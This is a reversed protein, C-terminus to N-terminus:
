PLMIGKLEFQIPVERMPGPTEYELRWSKLNAPAFAKGEKFRYRIANGNIEADDTTHKTTGDPATLVIRNRSLWYTEFSEFVASTEPYHLVIDAIWFSGEKEFKRLAVEVGKDKKATPKTVDDFSLRLMEEAATARFTGQLIKIQKSDRSIGELRVRTTTVVGSVPMRADFPKVTIPRGADGEGKTLRPQADVRYVPLRSEWAIELTLDYVAKGTQLDLRTEVDRAVIRFPGDSSVPTRLLKGLPLLRVPKGQQGVVVRSNTQEALLDAVQWFEQKEFMGKIPLTPDLATIDIELASQKGLEAVVSKLTMERGSYTLTRAPIPGSEAMKQGRAPCVTVTLLIAPLLLRMM